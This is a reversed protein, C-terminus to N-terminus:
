HLAKLIDEVDEFKLMLLIIRQSDIGLHMFKDFIKEQLKTLYATFAQVEKDDPAYESMKPALLFTHEVEEGDLQASVDIVNMDLFDSMKKLTEMDIRVAADEYRKVTAKAKGIKEGVEALSYGKKLRAQKLQKGLKVYIPKDLEKM